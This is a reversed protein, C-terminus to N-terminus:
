NKWSACMGGAGTGSHRGPGGTMVSAFPDSPYQESTIWTNEMVYAEGKRHFLTQAEELLVGHEQVGYAAHNYAELNDSLQSRVLEGNRDYLEATKDYSEGSKQYYDVLGHRDYVPDMTKEFSGNNDDLLIEENLNQGDANRVVSAERHSEEGM